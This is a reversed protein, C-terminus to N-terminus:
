RESTEDLGGESLNALVLTVTEHDDGCRNVSNRTGTAQSQKVASKRHNTNTLAAPFALVRPKDLGGDASPQQDSVNFPVAMRIVDHNSDTRRRHPLTVPAFLRRCPLLRVRHSVGANTSDSSSRQKSAAPSRSGNPPVAQKLSHAYCRFGPTSTSRRFFAGSFSSRRHGGM